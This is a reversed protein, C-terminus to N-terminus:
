SCVLKIPDQLFTASSMLGKAQLLAKKKVVYGCGRAFDTKASAGLEKVKALILALLVFHWTLYSNFKHRWM